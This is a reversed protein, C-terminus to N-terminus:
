PALAGLGMMLHERDCLALQYLKTPEALYELASSTIESARNEPYVKGMYATLFKDKIAQEGSLKAGYSSLDLLEDQLKRSDRFRIARQLTIPQEHELFHGLEHLFERAGGQGVNIQNRTNATSQKFHARENDYILDININKQRWRSVMDIYHKGEKFIKKKEQLSFPENPLSKVQNLRFANDYTIHNIVFKRQVLTERFLDLTVQKDALSTDLYAQLFKNLNKGHKLETKLLHSRWDIEANLDTLEEKAIRRAELSRKNLLDSLETARKNLEKFRNQHLNLRLGSYGPLDLVEDIHNFFKVPNIGVEFLNAHTVALPSIKPLNFLTKLDPTAAFIDKSFDPIAPAASAIAQEIRDGKETLRAKTLLALDEAKDAQRLLKPYLSQLGQKQVYEFADRVARGTYLASVLNVGARIWPNEVGLKKLGADTLTAGAYGGLSSAVAGALSDGLAVALAVEPGAIALAAISGPIAVAILKDVLQNGTQPTRVFKKFESLTDQISSNIEGLSKTLDDLAPTKTEFFEATSAFVEDKIIGIPTARSAFRGFRDRFVQQTNKLWDADYEKIGFAELELLNVQCRIAELYTLKAMAFDTSLHAM